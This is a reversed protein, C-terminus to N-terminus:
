LRSTNKFEQIYRYMKQCWEDAPLGYLSDACKLIISVAIYKGIQHSNYDSERSEEITLGGLKHILWTRLNHLIKKM